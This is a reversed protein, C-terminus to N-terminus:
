RAGVMKELQTFARAVAAAGGKHAYTTPIKVERAASVLPDSHKHGVAADLVILASVRRQRIRQALNGIAHTGHRSTEIWDVRTGLVGLVQDLKEPRPSGGVVVIPASESRKFLEPWAPAVTPQSDRSPAPNSAPPEAAADTRVSSTGVEARQLESLSRVAVLLRDAVSRASPRPSSAVRLGRAAAFDAVLEAQRAAELEALLLRVQDLDGQGKLKKAHLESRLAECFEDIPGSVGSDHGPVFRSDLRGLPSFPCHTDSTFNGPETQSLYGTM